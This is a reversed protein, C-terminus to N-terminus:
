NDKRLFYDFGRDFNDSLAFGIQRSARFLICSSAFRGEYANARFTM